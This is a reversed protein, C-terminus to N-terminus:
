SGGRVSRVGRKLDHRHRQIAERQDLAGTDDLLIPVVRGREVFDVDDVRVDHDIAAGREGVDLLERESSREATEDEVAAIGVGSEVVEDDRVIGEERRGVREEVRGHVEV